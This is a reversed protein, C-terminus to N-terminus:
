SKARRAAAVPSKALTPLPGAIWNTLYQQGIAWLQSVFWYLVVGSASFLMMATFMIPMVMMVRQQAPDATTPTLKQQWFMTIGMLAPLVFFPDAASLDHLWGAFPAGRLEISQALLSYFAMLVPLTLLMPLCGGAPNVGKEKYLASVEEQMKQRGPDTMKLHSYRDQIAKMLPQVAQMRRMAMSSKHRLPFMVLNIFITLLIISWGYNGTFRFIWKLTSLLPVVLWAFIGFDIARTYDPGLERLDDFQKPGVFFTISQGPSSPRLTYALLQRQTENPGPLTLPKFEASGNLDSVAFSVFYHDDVGVFRFPGQATPTAAADEAYLRTVEGGHHALTRPPMVANGTFMSGGGSAAGQDGLGPGWAIAPNLPTTGQHATVTATFTYGKPEFRFEKRAALGNEDQFEFVLPQGSSATVTGGSDGTVRYLATNLRATEKADDLLLTFPRPEDDPLGSPVLDVLAGETDRYNKLQWHLIRAGRNTFVVRLTDTEVTIERPQTEGLVSAPAPEAPVAAPSAVPSAASAGPAPAPAAAAPKAGAAPTAPPPPALYTQYTYLVVFSLLVAIFVRREM